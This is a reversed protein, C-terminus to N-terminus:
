RWNIADFPNNGSGFVKKRRFRDVQECQLGDKSCYGFSMFGCNKCNDFYRCSWRVTRLVEQVHRKKVEDRLRRRRERRDEKSMRKRHPRESKNLLRGSKTDLWGYHM